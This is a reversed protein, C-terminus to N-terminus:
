NANRIDVDSQNDTSFLNYKSECGYEDIVTVNCASHAPNSTYYYNDKECRVARICNNYDPIHQNAVSGPPNAPLTINEQGRKLASIAREPTEDKSSFDIGYTYGVYLTGTMTFHKIKLGDPFYWYVTYADYYDNKSMEYHVIHGDNPRYLQGADIVYPRTAEITVYNYNFQSVGSRYLTGDITIVAEFDMPDLTDDSTSLYFYFVQESQIEIGESALLEADEALIEIEEKEMIQQLAQGVARSVSSLGMTYGNNTKSSLWGKPLNSQNLSVIKLTNIEAQSLPQDVGNVQKKLIVRLKVQQRGNAYLSRTGQLDHGSADVPNLKFTSVYTSM